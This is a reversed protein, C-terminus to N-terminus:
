HNWLNKHEDLIQKQATEFDATTNLNMQELTTLNVPLKYTDNEELFEHIKLQNRSVKLAIAAILHYPYIGFLPQIKHEVSAVCLKDTPANQMLNTMNALSIFPTDVSIVLIAEQAHFLATYIGGLPGKNPIIDPIVPKGFIEYDPNQSIIFVETKIQNLTHLLYAILPKGLLPKLGKDEGMRSSKGGALIYVKMMM